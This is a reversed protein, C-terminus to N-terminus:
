QSGQEWSIAVGHAAHTAPAGRHNSTDAAGAPASGTSGGNFWHKAPPAASVTHETYEFKIQEYSLSLSGGTVANLEADDLTRDAFAVHGFNSSDDTKSM